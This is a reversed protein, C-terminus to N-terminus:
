ESGHASAADSWGLPSRWMGPPPIAFAMRRPDGDVRLGMASPVGVRAWQVVCPIEFEVGAVADAVHVVTSTGCRLPSTSAVILGEPCVYRLEGALFGGPATLQAPLGHEVKPAPGAAPLHLDCALMQLLSLLETRESATLTPSTAGHRARLQWFRVMFDLMELM